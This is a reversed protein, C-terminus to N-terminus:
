GRHISRGAPANQIGSFRGVHPAAARQRVGAARVGPLARLREAVHELLATRREMSYDPPFAIRATLVNTPDYGRDVHHLAVFSRVLLVAGLLLVCSVAVQGAMLLARADTTGISIGGAIPVNGDESLLQVLDVRRAHWAPLLACAVSSAVSALVAFLLVRWDIAVADVRPFDAPLVSPLARHWAMTLMVGALGGCAGLMASEAVLQRTLAATGAGIAARIAIERRRATARALQLTAINATATVLLLAVAALLILLAPRVEATMLDIAPTARIEPPGNDGFLAVATLGPDPANRARATGETTAQEPTAGPRLRAIASFITMRLLGDEGVVFPPVWPTWARTERDPFVFDKPMVGVVTVPKGDLQVVRGIADERGGFLEQWLGYSLIVFRRTGQLPVKPPDDDIFMRGVLPRVKLVAFLSPTVAATQIPSPDGGAIALM